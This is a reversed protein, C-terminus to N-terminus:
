IEVGLERIASRLGDCGERASPVLAANWGRSVAAQVNVESDDVFGIESPLLGLAHEVREYIPDDPKVVGMEFSLFCHERCADSVAPLQSLVEWHRSCTNSLVAAEIGQARVDQVVSLAGLYEERLIADHLELLVDDDVKGDLQGGIHTTLESLSLKGAQYARNVENFAGLDKLEIREGGWGTSELASAINHHIRVLVGGIDFVLIKPATTV